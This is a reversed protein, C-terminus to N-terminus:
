RLTKLSLACAAEAEFSVKGDRNGSTSVTDDLDILTGESRSRMLSGVRRFSRVRGAAMDDAFM